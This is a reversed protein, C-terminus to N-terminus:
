ESFVADVYYNTGNYSDTPFAPTGGSLNYVGNLVNTTNKYFPPNYAANSLFAHLPGNITEGATFYGSDGSYHSYMLVSATYPTLPIIPVPTSFKMTQWGSSSEGSFSAEALKTGSTSWLDGIHKGTNNSAKYFRIGTINGAVVSYFQIGVTIGNAASSDNADPTGPTADGFINCSTCSAHSSSGSGEAVVCALLVTATVNM